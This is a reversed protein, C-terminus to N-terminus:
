VKKLRIFGSNFGKWYDYKGNLIFYESKKSLSSSDAESHVTHTEDSIELGKVKSLLGDNPRDKRGKLLARVTAYSFKTGNAIMAITSRPHQGIYDIVKREKENLKSVIGETQSEFLEKARIFDDTIAILYGDADTERQAHFFVTFGKVMDLFLPFTRANSKDELEIDKAFPIKVKFHRSRIIDYIRRCILVDKNIILIGLEGSEAEIQQMEFIANKQATDDLTNFTLQRNLLQDSSAADVSTLYWNIRPPILYTNIKGDKVTSHQTYEQYNTTARKIVEEMDESPIVDDSFIITGPKLNMYYAAKASLSTVKKYKSPVLHLHTKLGHSKGSGSEGNVSIQIGATNLCSQGAISICIGEMTKEDGAHYQKVTNLIFEIPNGSQLIKIAEIRAAEKDEASIDIEDLDPENDKDPDKKTQTKEDTENVIKSIVELQRTDDMQEWFLGGVYTTIIKAIDIPDLIVLDSIIKKYVIHPYVSQDPNININTDLNPNSLILSILEEDVSINGDVSKEPLKNFRKRLWEASTMDESMM